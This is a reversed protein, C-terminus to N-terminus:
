FKENNIWLEKQVYEASAWFGKTRDANDRNKKMFQQYLYPGYRDVITDRDNMVQQWMLEIDQFPAYWRTHCSVVHKRRPSGLTLNYKYKLYKKGKHDSIRMSGLVGDDFKLYVSHTGIANYRMVVIGERKCENVVWQAARDIKEANTAM